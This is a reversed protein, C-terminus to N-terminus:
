FYLTHRPDGTSLWVYGCDDATTTRLRSCQVGSPSRCCPTFNDTVSRKFAANGSPCRPPDPSCNGTMLKLWTTVFLGYMAGSNRVALPFKFYESLVVGSAWLYSQIPHALSVGPAFETNAIFLAARWLIFIPLLAILYRLAVTLTDLVRSHSRSPQLASNQIARIVGGVYPADINLEHKGYPQGVLSNWHYERVTARIGQEILFADVSKELVHAEPSGVGHILVVCVRPAPPPSADSSSGDSETRVGDSCGLRVPQTVFRWRCVLLWSYVGRIIVLPQPLTPCTRTASHRVNGAGRMSSSTRIEADLDGVM